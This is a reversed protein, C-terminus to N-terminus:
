EPLFLTVVTAFALAKAAVNLILFETTYAFSFSLFGWIAFVFFMGALSYLTYKTVKFLPSFFQLSITTLEILFLPFFFLARLVAPDPPIPPVTRGMVILDFPLEFVMPGAMAAAAASLFAVRKGKKRNIFFIVLFSLFAFSLTFKTIPNNPVTGTFNAQTLLISYVVINILFTLISLIWVAVMVGAIAKGPMKVTLRNKLKLGFLTFVGAIVLLVVGLIIASNGSYPVWEGYYKEM